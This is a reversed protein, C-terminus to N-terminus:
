EPIVPEATYKKKADEENFTVPVVVKWTVEAGTADVKDGDVKWTYSIDYGVAAITGMITKSEQSISMVIEANGTTAEASETTVKVTANVSITPTVIVTVDSSITNDTNAVTVTNVGEVLAEADKITATFGDTVTIKSGAAANSLVIKATLANGNEKGIKVSKIEEGVTLEVTASTTPDESTGPDITAPPNSNGGGVSGNDVPAETPAVTVEAEQEGAGITSVVNGDPDKVEIEEETHNTAEVKAGPAAVITTGESGLNLEVKVAVEAKIAVPAFAAVTAGEAKVEVTAATKSIGSIAAMVAKLINLQAEVAETLTELTVDAHVDVVVKVETSIKTGAAEEAVEVQVEKETEGTLKVEGAAQVSVKDVSGGDVSEINIVPNQVDEKPAFEVERIQAGKEARIRANGSSVRFKNGIAKEIFTSPKIEEINIAAFRGSNDVEANPAKITLTRKTYNKSGIEFTREKDTIIHIDTCNKNKLALNLQYQTRAVAYGEKDSVVQITVWDSVATAYRATAAEDAVNGNAKRAAKWAEMNKTSAFALARIQFEGAYVPYVIGWRSSSVGATNGANVEWWIVGTAKGKGNETALIDQDFNFQEGVEITNNEPLAKIGLETVANRTAAKAPAAPVALTLLMVAAVLCAIKRKVKM